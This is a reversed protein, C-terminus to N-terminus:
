QRGCCHKYKKGSGCSCPDNRNIKKKEPSATKSHSNRIKIVEEQIYPLHPKIHNVLMKLSTCYESVQNFLGAQAQRFKTCDGCCFSVMPCSQCEKPIQSKLQAFRQRLPNNIISLFDQDRINGLKWEPYVFFDCPYCDGNHEIVFYSNCQRMWSCSVKVRDFHYILIDEFLRISVDPFGDKIWLDFIKCYFEGVEKGKVSFNTLVNHQDDWEYCNIFQLYNFQNERFFSYVEQPHHINADTLLTLINYQVKHENMQQIAQYVQDFSGKGAFNTRYHNHIEKPGDLSIGVLFNNQKLFQCWEEDLLIGNTQLTNEVIQGPKKYKQIWKMVEKYFDLGLLTPEGGQWSLINYSAGVSLVKKMMQHVTEINMYPKKGSYLDEVRKYFCYHCNLNCTYSAPKLLLTIQNQNM